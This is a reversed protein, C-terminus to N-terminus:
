NWSSGGSEEEERSKLIASALATAFIGAAFGLGAIIFVGVTGNTTPQVVLVWLASMDTGINQFAVILIIMLMLITAATLFTKM